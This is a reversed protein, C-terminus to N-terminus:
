PAPTTTTELVVNLGELSVEPNFDLNVQFTYFRSLVNNGFSSSVSSTVNVPNGSAVSRHMTELLGFIMETAGPSGSSQPVYSVISGSPITLNGSSVSAGSFVDQTFFISM